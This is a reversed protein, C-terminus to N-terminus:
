CPWKRGGCLSVACAANRRERDFDIREFGIGSSAFAPCPLAKACRDETDCRRAALFADLLITAVSASKVGGRAARRANAATARQEQEQGRRGGMAARRAGRATRAAVDFDHEPVQVVAM